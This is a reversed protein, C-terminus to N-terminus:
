ILLNTLLTGGAGNTFAYMNTTKNLLPQITENWIIKLSISIKVTTVVVVANKNPIEADANFSLCLSQGSFYKQDNERLYVIAVANM